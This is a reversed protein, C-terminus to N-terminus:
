NVLKRIMLLLFIFSTYLIIEALREQPYHEASKRFCTEPASSQSATDRWSNRRGCVHTARIESCQYAPSGGSGWGTWRSCHRWIWRSSYHHKNGSIVNNTLFKFTVNNKNQIRQFLFKWFGLFGLNITMNLGSSLVIQKSFINQM